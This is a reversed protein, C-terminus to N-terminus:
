MKEAVFFLGFCHLTESGKSIMSMNRLKRRLLRALFKDWTGMHVGYTDAVGPLREMEQQLVSFYNGNYTKELVRLGYMRCWEEFMFESYGSSFFYPAFHVVTGYPFTIILTGGPKLIRSFEKM